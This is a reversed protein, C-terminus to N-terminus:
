AMSLYWAISYHYRVVAVETRIVNLDRHCIIVMISIAKTDFLWKCWVVWPWLTCAYVMDIM